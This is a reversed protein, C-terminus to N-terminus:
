RSSKRHKTGAAYLYVLNATSNNNILRIGLYHDIFRKQEYWSKTTNIYTPNVTGESTFMTVGDQNSTVGETFTGAITSVGTVLEATTIVEMDAMDRFDNIHWLKDARRVNSLYDIPTLEGSVQATNYVYFSDFGPSTHKHTEKYNNASISVVDAWFYFSSYVKAEGPSPNSIFEFESNYITNFFSGPNNFNSHEWIQSDWSELSNVFSYFEQATSAYFRPIYSHRSGWAEIEPYYSITWGGETFYINDSFLLTTESRTDYFNNNAIIIVESAFLNTLLTTPIRERKTLIVRKFKPDYTAIFGFYSTPSDLKFGTLELDIGLEELRFPTHNLFWKEMGLSSIEVISESYLYVKKDRRNMFFQGYRTGLNAFQSDCGGYGQATPLIESPDQSFINGDGVYAQSNDGLQLEQKGKTAFLSRETHIYLIAGLTFLKFIDGRNRPIDKYELAQFIRYKDNISGEDDMSRITRTPFRIVDNLKKPFPLAVRIDQNASYNNMYLLHDMHTSDMLPGNFIADKATAPGFYTSSEVNTGAEKDGMHRFGLLDDSECMFYFVTSTPVNDGRTWTEPIGWVTVNEKAIDKFLLNERQGQTFTSVNTNGGFIFDIVAGTLTQSVDDNIYESDILEDVTLGSWNMVDQLSVQADIIATESDTTPIDFPTFKSHGYSISTSRFSYRGIYTDGGFINDSEAGVYYNDSSTTGTDENVLDIEKYYGTWVLSQEDFSKFVDSKISCLNVLYTAPWGGNGVVGGWGEQANVWPSGQKLVYNLNYWEGVGPNLYGFYAYWSFRGGWITEMGQANWGSLMPLGSELGIAIESEGAFNYLYDTGHFETGGVTKLHLHGPLYTISKAKLTYISSLNSLGSNEAWGDAIGLQTDTSNSPMLYASALMISTNFSKIKLDHSVGVSEDDEIIDDPDFTNGVESSLWDPMYFSKTTTQIDEKSNPGGRYHRMVLISQVDVHTAGTLTHKNKLLNFDHFGFVSIGRYTNEARKVKLYNIERPPIGGYMYWSKSFPGRAALDADMTSATNGEFAAPVPISQGLITKNEQNRKAYYVKYGQVQRLIFKPIQVNSLKIGLISIDEFMKFDQVETNGEGYINPNFNSQSTTGPGIYKWDTHKNSPMKHHRVNDNQLTGVSVADGNINTGWIDFDSTQPYFENRNEWFSTTTDVGSIENLLVQTDTAQYISIDGYQNQLETANFISTSINSSPLRSIATDENIGDAIERAIRGPIHYAYTETGDKLVFSIYFAYVESRRYSKKKYFLKSDKYGKRVQSSFKNEQETTDVSSVDQEARYTEFRSDVTFSTMTTPSDFLSYGENLSILDFYRPDFREITETVAELNINNAFRQYGIDGRAQLNSLYLQNELQVLTKGTEYRVHDIVVENVAGAAVSELGTYTIDLRRTSGTYNPIKVDQLEYAFESSTQNQGGGLRQIIIPTIHSYNVAIPIDVEWTISKKSQSSQPDGTITETPITNEPTTVLHVANSTVLYNTKNGDEDSYALALHYTGSVVGGGEEIRVEDFQPISGAHLFLDLKDVNYEANGYLATESSTLLSREQKSVNFIRPPNFDDIYSIETATDTTRSLYNDTFYVLIDGQTNVKAIAEITFDSQFNLNDDRYLVTYTGDKPSLISIMDGISDIAFVVIRGDELPCAGIIEYIAPVIDAVIQNGQENVIAGKQYYLNVNLADRYTHEGQDVREPDKQMGKLFKQM